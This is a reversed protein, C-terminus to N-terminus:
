RDGRVLRVALHATRYQFHSSGDMFNVSWAWASYAAHPTATWYGFSRGDPFYDRDIAATLYVGSLDM